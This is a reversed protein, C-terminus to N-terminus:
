PAPDTQIRELPINIALRTGGEAGRLASFQGGLNTVRKKMNDLGHKQIREAEPPLGRGNDGIELRLKDSEQALCLHVESAEAHRVINHLAEKVILFLQHRASSNIALATAESPFELRCRVGAAALYNETYQGLFTTLSEVNDHQPNMAWVVERMTDVLDRTSRALNGLQNQPANAACSQGQLVDLQLALGTLNAGLEDHLDKAIRAREEQLARQRELNQFRQVRRLRWHHLGFGTAWVVAGCTLYFPWTQYFHPALHFSIQDGTLNWTGHANGATVRFTYDGPRLNTYFAVRRNQDDPVWDPDHGELRYKFRVRESSTLSNATYHIELVRAHGPALQLNRTTLQPAATSGSSPVRSKASMGDGFVVENNARVQEIVVPPPEARQSERPDIVVVGDATPFWLRGDRSKCGAPQHEGNTEPTRMGDAVGYVIANARPKRGAAVANLEAREMRFIGRNCSFWLWGSDDEEMWNILDDFLGQAARFTFFKGDQFRSLGNHTGIWLAGEADEHFVFVRDDTLGDAVTFRRASPQRNPNTESKPNSIESNRNGKWQVAGGQWTGFWMTGDRTEYIARVNNTPLGHEGWRAAPQANEIWTVGHDTGVWVRGSRDLYLAELMVGNVSDVTTTNWFGKSEGGPQWATLASADDGFWVTNKRDVIAFLSGKSLKGSVPQVADDQIRALGRATGVWISRDPAECVSWCERDPLGETVSFSRMFRPRLQYLGVDTGVWVHGEQDELLCNISREASPDGLSIPQAGSESCRFLGVQGCGAWVGGTQDALFQDRPRLREPFTQLQSWQGDAFHFLGDGTGLWAQRARDTTQVGAYWSFRPAEAPLKWAKVTGDEALELCRRNTGVVLHGDATEWASHREEPMPLLLPIKALVRDRYLLVAEHTWVWVGGGAAPVLEAIVVDALENTDTPRTFQRDKLRVLGAPTGIWLAGDRRDVALATIAEKKLEPTNGNNFVVFRLGDFRALGFWTGAWLYGDPTQALASIRMQPLGQESTWRIAHYLPAPTQPSKVEAGALPALLSALALGALLVQEFLRRFM